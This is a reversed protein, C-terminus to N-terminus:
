CVTIYLGLPSPNYDEFFDLDTSGANTMQYAVTEGAPCEFSHIAYSNGPCVTFDGYNQNVSPANNYSTGQDAPSELSAFQVKGDGSFSFSSTELDEQKPFLFVLSCTKGADSAPIDFNFITSITSSVTGNFSTGPADDPSSSDVPIILHPFEYNGSLDTPCSGGSPQPQPPVGGGGASSTPTQSPGAGGGAPATPTESPGGGGAPATPTETTPPQSGGGGGPVGSTQPGCDVTVTTFQTTTAACDACTGPMGGPGESGPGSPAPSVPVTTTGQGPGEGAGGGPGGPGGTGSPSPIVPVTSTGPGESGPGGGAGGGPGSPSPVVPVTSTGPGESGPGGGAGGGPGSPSPVVPVTSTGPGESGPGGGAGGAPGSPAPSTVPFTSSPAPATSSPYGSASSSASGAGSGACSDASLQVNVCNTVDGSNPSTYINLENDEGTECAVFNTQGNYELQGNTNVSFGPTPTGGLDCQFQTTPPTLICGRGSGDTISGDSNVCFQGEPLNGGIRNQGDGLQGVPGSAEGSATIHFCCSTDRPVLANAGAAFAAFTAFNRM